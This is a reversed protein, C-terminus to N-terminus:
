PKRLLRALRALIPLHLRNYKLGLLFFLHSPKGDPAGFDIGQHSRGFVMFPRTIKDANRELTHLFAVGGDMATSVLGERAVAAGAFWNKAVIWGNTNARAALAEVTTAADRAELESVVSREELVEALPLGVGDPVDVLAMAEPDGGVREALWADVVDRQF